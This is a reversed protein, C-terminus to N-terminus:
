SPFNGGALSDETICYSQGIVQYSIASLQYSIAKLNESQAGSVLRDPIM